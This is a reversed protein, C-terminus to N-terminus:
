STLTLKSFEASPVFLSASPASLRAVENPAASIATLRSTGSRSAPAFLAKSIASPIAVAASCAILPPGTVITKVAATVPSASAYSAMVRSALVFRLVVFSCNFCYLFRDFSTLLTVAATLANLSASLSSMKLCSLDTLLSVYSM